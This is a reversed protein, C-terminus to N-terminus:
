HEGESLTGPALERISVHGDEDPWLRVGGKHTQLFVISLNVSLSVSLYILPTTVSLCIYTYISDLALRQPM